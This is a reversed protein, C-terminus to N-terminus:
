WNEQGLHHRNRLPNAEIFLVFFHPTSVGLNKKAGSTLQYGGLSIWQAVAVFPNLFNAAPKKKRGSTPVHGGGLCGM